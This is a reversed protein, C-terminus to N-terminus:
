FLKSLNNAFLKGLYVAVLSVVIISSINLLLEIYYGQFILQYLDFIWGSFSTLSGCLAFGFILKYRENINMANIIGLLFCGITNVLFADDIQWRFLSGPISGIAILIFNKDIFRKLM